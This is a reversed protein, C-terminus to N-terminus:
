HKFYNSKSCCNLSVLTLAFMASQEKFVSYLFSFVPKLRRLFCLMLSREYIHISFM